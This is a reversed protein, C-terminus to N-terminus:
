DKNIGVGNDRFVIELEIDVLVPEDKDEGGKAGEQHESVKDPARQSYLDLNFKATERKKVIVLDPLELNKSSEQLLNNVPNTEKM